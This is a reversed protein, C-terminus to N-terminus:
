ERARKHREKHENYGNTGERRVFKLWALCTELPGLGQGMGLEGSRLNTGARRQLIVARGQM